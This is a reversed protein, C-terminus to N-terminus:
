GTSTSPGVKKDAELVYTKTKDFVINRYGPIAQPDATRAPNATGFFNYIAGNDLVASLM